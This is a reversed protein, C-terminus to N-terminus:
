ALAEVYYGYVCAPAEQSEDVPCLQSSSLLFRNAGVICMHVQLCVCVYVGVCMCVCLYNPCKFTSQYATFPVVSSVRCCWQHCTLFM